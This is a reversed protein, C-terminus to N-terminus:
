GIKLYEFINKEMDDLDDASVGLFPRAPIDGWPAGGGLSGERAGFQQVASYEMSSGIELSNGVLRYFIQGSLAGSEGILPKKSM